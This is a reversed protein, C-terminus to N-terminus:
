ERQRVSIVSSFVVVINVFSFRSFNELNHQSNFHENNRHQAIHVILYVRVM